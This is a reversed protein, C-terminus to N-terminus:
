RDVATVAASAKAAWCRRASCRVSSSRALVANKARILSSNRVGSVSTSPGTASSRSAAGGPEPRRVSRSSTCRLACRRRRITSRSSSSERSYAPCTSGCKSGTSRAASVAPRAPINRAAASWAPSVRSSSQGSRPSGAKTSRDIHSCTTTARSARATATAAVPRIVTVRPRSPPEATSRTAVVPVAAVGGSSPPTPGASTASSTPNSPPETVVSGTVVSGAPAPDVTVTATGSPRSWTGGRVGPRAASSEPGSRTADTVSASHHSGSGSAPSGGDATGGSLGSAPRMRTTSSWASM